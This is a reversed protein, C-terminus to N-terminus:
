KNKLIDLYRRSAHSRALEITPFGDRPFRLWIDFDSILDGSGVLEEARDIVDQGLAKVKEVLVENYTGEKILAIKRGSMIAEEYTLEFIDPKCPYFEGKIGKIIYDGINAIHEGDLTKIVLGGVVKGHDIYFNDGSSSIYDDVKGTLFNWMERHNGGSWKVAEVIIPKKNYYM